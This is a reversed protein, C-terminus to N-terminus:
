NDLLLERDAVTEFCFLHWYVFPATGSSTERLLLREKECLPIVLRILFNGRQRSIRSLWLSIVSKAQMVFTIGMLFKMRTHAQPLRAMRAM